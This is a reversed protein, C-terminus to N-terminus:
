FFLILLSSHPSTSERSIEQGPLINALLASLVVSRTVHLSHPAIPPLRKQGSDACLLDCGRDCPQWLHSHDFPRHLAPTGRQHSLWFRHWASSGAGFGTPCAHPTPS